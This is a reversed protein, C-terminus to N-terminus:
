RRFTLFSVAAAGLVVVSWLAAPHNLFTVKFLEWLFISGFVAGVSFNRFKQRTNPVRGMNVVIMVVVAIAIATAMLHAAHLQSVQLFVAVAILTATMVIMSQIRRNM